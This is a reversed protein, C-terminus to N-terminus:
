SWNTSQCSPWVVMRDIVHPGLGYSCGRWMKHSFVGTGGEESGLWRSTGEEKVIRSLCGLDCGSTTTSQLRMCICGAKRMQVKRRRSDAGVLASTEAAAYLGRGSQPKKISLLTLAIQMRIKYSNNTTYWQTIIWWSVIATCVNEQLRIKPNYKWHGCHWSPPRRHPRPWVFSSNLMVMRSSKLFRVTHKNLDM